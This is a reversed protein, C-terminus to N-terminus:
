QTSCTSPTLLNDELRGNKMQNHLPLLDFHNSLPVWGGGRLFTIELDDVDPDGNGM